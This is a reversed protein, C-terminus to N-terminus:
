RVLGRGGSDSRGLRTGDLVLVMLLRLLRTELGRRRPQAIASSSRRQRLLLLLLLLLRLLLFSTSRQLRRRSSNPLFKPLRRSHSPRPTSTKHLNPQAIRSDIPPSEEKGSDRTTKKDNRTTTTTTYAPLLPAHTTTLLLFLLPLLLFSSKRLANKHLVPLSPFSPHSDTQLENTKQLAHMCAFRKIGIKRKALTNKPPNPMNQNNQQQQQKNYM